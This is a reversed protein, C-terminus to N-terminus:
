SCSLFVPNTNVPKFSHNGFQTGCHLTTFECPSQPINRAVGEWSNWTSGDTGPWSRESNNCSRMLNFVIRLRKHSKMKLALTVPYWTVHDCYTQSSYYGSYISGMDVCIIALVFFLLGFSIYGICLCYGEEDVRWELYTSAFLSTWATEM